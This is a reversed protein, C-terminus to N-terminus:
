LERNRREEKRRALIVHTFSVIFLLLYAAIAVMLLVGLIIYPIEAYEM